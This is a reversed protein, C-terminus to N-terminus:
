NFPIIKKPRNVIYPTDTDLAKFAITPGNFFVTYTGKPNWPDVVYIKKVKKPINLTKKVDKTKYTTLTGKSIAKNLHIKMTIHENSLFEKASEPTFGLGSNCLVHIGMKWQDSTTDYNSVYITELTNRIVNTTVRDYKRDDRGLYWMNLNDPTPYAGFAIRDKVDEFDSRNEIHEDIYTDIHLQHMHTGLKHDDSMMEVTCSEKPGYKQEVTQEPLKDKIRDYFEQVTLVVDKVNSHTSKKRKTKHANLKAIYRNFIVGNRTTHSQRTRPGM